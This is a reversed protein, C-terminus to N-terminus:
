TTLPLEVVLLTGRHPESHVQIAGGLHRVVDHVVTLGLGRTADDQKTSVFPEFVRPLLEPAIGAGSDQVELTARQTGVSTRVTILNEEAPGSPMAEIANTLLNMLIHSLEVPAAAVPPVNGLELALRARTRVKTGIITM